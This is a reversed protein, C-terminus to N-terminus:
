RAAQELAPRFTEAWVAYGRPSPHFGDPALMSHDAAFIPGTIDALNVRTMGRRATEERWIPDYVYAAVLGAVLRLPQAVRTVTGMAPVGSVIVPVHYQALRELVASLDARARWPPTLNIVDNGGIVLLVIDPHLGEMRRLQDTLVDNVRAGSVAYVHLEVRRHLRDALGRAVRRPYGQDQTVAGVGSGTSDGLIALTLPQDGPAGVVEDPSGPAEPSGDGQFALAAEAVLLAFVGVVAGPLFWWRKSARFGM